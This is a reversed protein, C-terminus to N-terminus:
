RKKISAPTKKNKKKLVNERDNNMLLIINDSHFGRTSNVGSGNDRYILNLDHTRM